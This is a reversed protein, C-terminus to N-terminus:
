LRQNRSTSSGGLGKNPINLPKTTPMTSIMLPPLVPLPKEDKAAFREKRERRERGDKRDRSDRDRSSRPGISLPSGLLNDVEPVISKRNEVETITPRLRSVQQHMAPPRKLDHYDVEVVRSGSPRRPNGNSDYKVPRQVEPPPSSPPSPGFPNSFGKAPPHDHTRSRPPSRAQPRNQSEPQARAQSQTGLETYSKALTELPSMAALDTAKIAKAREMKAKVRAAEAATQEPNEWEPFPVGSSTKDPAKSAPQKSSSFSPFVPKFVNFVVQDLSRSNNGPASRKHTGTTTTTMSGTGAVPTSSANSSSLAGIVQRPRLGRPPGIGRSPRSAQAQTDTNSRFLDARPREEAPNPLNSSSATRRYAGHRRVTTPGTAAVYDLGHENAASSFNRERAHDARAKDQSPRSFGNKADREQSRKTMIAAARDEPSMGPFYDDKTLPKPEEKLRDRPLSEILPYRIANKNVQNDPGTRIRDISPSRKHSRSTEKKQSSNGFLDNSLKRIRQM